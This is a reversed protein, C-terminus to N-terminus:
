LKHGRKRLEDLMRERLEGAFTQAFKQGVSMSEQMIAPMKDLFKQGVPGRYFATLQRM